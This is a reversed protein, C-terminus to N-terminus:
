TNSYGKLRNRLEEVESEEMERRDFEPNAKEKLNDLRWRVTHWTALSYEARAEEFLEIWEEAPKGLAYLGTITKIQSPVAVKPQHLLLHDLLKKKFEKFENDTEKKVTTGRVSVTPVTIGKEKYTILMDRWIRVINVTQEALISAVQEQDSCDVPLEMELTIKNRLKGM